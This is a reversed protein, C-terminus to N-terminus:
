EEWDRIVCRDEQRRAIRSEEKVSQSYTTQSVGDHTVLPDTNPRGSVRKRWNKFDGYRLREFKRFTHAM